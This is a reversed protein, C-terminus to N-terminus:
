RADPPPFEVVGTDNVEFLDFELRHDIVDQVVTQFSRFKINDLISDPWDYIVNYTDGYGGSILFRRPEEGVLSLSMPFHLTFVFGGNDVYPLLMDSIEFDTFHDEKDVKCRFFCVLYYYSKCTPHGRRYYEKYKPHSAYREQVQKHWTELKSGTELNHIDIVKCHGVGILEKTGDSLTAFDM